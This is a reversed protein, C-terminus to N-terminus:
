LNYTFSLWNITLETNKMRKLYSILIRICSASKNGGQWQITHIVQSTIRSVSTMLSSGDATTWTGQSAWIATVGSGCVVTAPYVVTLCARRRAFGVVMKVESNWGIQLLLLWSPPWQQLWCVSLQLFLLARRWKTQKSTKTKGASIFLKVVVFFYPFEQVCDVCQDLFRVLARNEYRFSASWKGCGDPFVGFLFTVAEFLGAEHIRCGLHVFCVASRCLVLFQVSWLLEKGPLCWVSKVCIGLSFGRSFVRMLPYTLITNSSNVFLNQLQGFSSPHSRNVRRKRRSPPPSPSPSLSARECPSLLWVPGGLKTIRNGNAICCLRVVCFM